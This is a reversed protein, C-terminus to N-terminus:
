IIGRARLLDSVRQEDGDMPDAQLIDLQRLLKTYRDIIEKKTQRGIKKPIDIAQPTLGISRALERYEQICALIIAHVMIDYTPFAETWQEFIDFPPYLSPFNKFTYHTMGDDTEVSKSNLMLDYCEWIREDDPIFLFTLGTFPFRSHNPITQREIMQVLELDITTHKRQKEM